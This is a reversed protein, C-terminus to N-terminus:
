TEMIVLKCDCITTKRTTIKINVIVPDKLQKAMIM